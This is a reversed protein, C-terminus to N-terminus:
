RAQHGGHAGQGRTLTSRLQALQQRLSGDFVLGGITAVAGGLLSPDIRLDLEVEQGTREALARRLRERQEDRLPAASVVEARARGAAADALRAYEAAIAAFDILRRQDVLFALFHRLLDSSGLRVGLASLLARREAVPHLPSLLARELESSGTLLENMQEIERRVEPVRQAEQALAFLARAYRRAAASVRM